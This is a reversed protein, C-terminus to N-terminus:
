VATPVTFSQNVTPLSRSCTKSEKQQNHALLGTKTYEASLVRCPATIIMITFVIQLTCMTLPYFM